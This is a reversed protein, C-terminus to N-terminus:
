YQVFVELATAFAGNGADGAAAKEYRATLPITTIGTADITRTIEDTRLDLEKSGDLIALEVNDAAGTAATNKLRGEELNKGNFTFIYDGATCKTGSTGVNLTFDQQRVSGVGGNIVEASLTPMTVTTGGTGVTIGCTLAEIKGTFNITADAASASSIAGLSLAASLALAIKNM